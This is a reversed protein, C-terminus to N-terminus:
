RHLFDDAERLIRRSSDFELLAIAKEFSYLGASRLESAQPVLEQDSYEALFYIIQKMVGPRQPIPHADETRFGDLIRPRLGVEEFVERLATETETEGPEMHGKPFGHFGETSEIVVYEIRDGARTFVVAGCSKEFTM